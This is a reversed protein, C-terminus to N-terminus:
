SYTCDPIKKSGIINVQIVNLEDPKADPGLLAQRIVLKNNRPNYDTAEPDWTVSTNTDSLTVGAILM